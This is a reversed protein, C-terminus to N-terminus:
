IMGISRGTWRFHFKLLWRNNCLWPFWGCTDVTSSRTATFYILKMGELTPHILPQYNLVYENQM